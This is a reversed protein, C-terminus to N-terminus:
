ALATFYAFCEKLKCSSDNKQPPLHLRICLAATRKTLLMQMVWGCGMIVLHTCVLIVKMSTYESRLFAYWDKVWFQRSRERPKLYLLSKLHSDLVVKSVKLHYLKWVQGAHRRPKARKIPGSDLWKRAKDTLLPYLIKSIANLFNEWSSKILFFHIIKRLQPLCRGWKTPLECEVPMEWSRAPLVCDFHGRLWKEGLLRKNGVTFGANSGKHGDCYRRKTKSNCTWFYFLGNKMFKCTANTYNKTPRSRDWNQHWRGEVYSTQVTIGWLKWPYGM